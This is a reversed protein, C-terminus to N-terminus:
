ARDRLKLFENCTNEHCAVRGISEGNKPELIEMIKYPGYDYDKSGANIAEQAKKWAETCKNNNHHMWVGYGIIGCVVGSYTMVAVVATKNESVFDKVDESVNKVKEKIQKFM